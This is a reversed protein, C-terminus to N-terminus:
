LKYGLKRIDSKIKDMQSLAQQYGIEYMKDGNWFQYSTYGNLDPHIMVDSFKYGKEWPKEIESKYSPFVKKIISPKTQTTALDIGVVYDAGMSRVVDAPISNTFAGDIYKTGDITVPKFFPPISSSACLAMAVSGSDFVREKGTELNTAVAKFPKKLQEFDIEGIHKDIVKFVKSSSMKIM